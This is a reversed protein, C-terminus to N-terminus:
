TRREEVLWSFWATECPVDTAFSSCSLPMAGVDPNKRRVRESPLQAVSM